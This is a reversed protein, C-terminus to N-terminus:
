KKSLNSPQRTMTSRRDEGSQVPHQGSASAEPQGSPDRQAPQVTPSRAMVSSRAFPNTVQSPSIDVQRPLIDGKVPLDPNKSSKNASAGRNDLTESQRKVAEKSEKIARELDRSQKQRLSEASPDFPVVPKVVRGRRTTVPTGAEAEGTTGWPDHTAGFHPSVGSVWDRIRTDRSTSTPTRAVRPRRIFPDDQSQTIPTSHSITISMNPTRININPNPQQVPSPQGHDSGISINQPLLEDENSQVDFSPLEEPNLASQDSGSHISSSSSIDDDKFSL